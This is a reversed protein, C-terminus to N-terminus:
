EWWVIDRIVPEVEHNGAAAYQDNVAGIWQWAAGAAIVLSAVMSALGFESGGRPMSKGFFLILFFAVGPIVPILWANELFWGSAIGAVHEGAKDAAFLM